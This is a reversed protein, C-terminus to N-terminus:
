LLGFWAIYVFLDLVGVNFSLLSSLWALVIGGASVGVVVVAMVVGDVCGCSANGGLWVYGVM